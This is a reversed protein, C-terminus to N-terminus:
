RAVLAEEYIAAAAEDSELLDADIPQAASASLVTEPLDARLLALADEHFMMREALLDAVTFATKSVGASTHEETEALVHFFEHALLRALAKGYVEPKNSANKLAKGLFRDVAGCNVWSFPLVKGDQVATSALSTGTKFKGSGETPKCTGRLEVSIVRDAQVRSNPNPWQLQVGAPAMLETLEQRLFPLSESKDGKLYVAVTAKPASLAASAGFLACSSFLCVIALLRAYM